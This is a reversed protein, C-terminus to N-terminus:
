GAGTTGGAARREAEGADRRALMDAIRADWYAVREPDPPAAAYLRATLVQITAKAEDYDGPALARGVASRAPHAAAALEHLENTFPFRRVGPLTKYAACAARFPADPVGRLSHWYELLREPPQEGYILALRGMEVKFTEYQM